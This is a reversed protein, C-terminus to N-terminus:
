RVCLYVDICSQFKLTIFVKHTFIYSWWWKFLKGPEHQGPSTSIELVYLDRGQVSKGVSYLRTINPYNVNILNLMSVLRTYNHHVFEVPIPFGYNDKQATRVEISSLDIASLFFIRKIEKVKCM